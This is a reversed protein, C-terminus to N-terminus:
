DTKVVVQNCYSLHSWNPIKIKGSEDLTIRKITFMQFCKTVLVNSIIEKSINPYLKSITEIIQELIPPIPTTAQITPNTEM